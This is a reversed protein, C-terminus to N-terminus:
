LTNAIQTMEDRESWEESEQLEHRGGPKLAWHHLAARRPLGRATQERFLSPTAPNRNATLTRFLVQLSPRQALEM